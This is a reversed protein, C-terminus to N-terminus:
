TYRSVVGYCWDTLLGNSHLVLVLNTVYKLKPDMNVVAKNKVRKAREAFRLSSTTEDYNIGAPSINCCILTYANGGLSCHSHHSPFCMILVTSGFISHTLLTKLRVHSFTKLLKNWM